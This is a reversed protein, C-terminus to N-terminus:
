CCLLNFACSVCKVLIWTYLKAFAWWCRRTPVTLSKDVHLQRLVQRGAAILLQCKSCICLVTPVLLRFVKHSYSARWQSVSSWCSVHSQVSHSIPSSQHSVQIMRAAKVNWRTRGDSWAANRRHWQFASGIGRKQFVCCSTLLIWLCRVEVADCQWCPMLVRFNFISPSSCQADCHIIM